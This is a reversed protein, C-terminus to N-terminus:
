VREVDYFPFSGTVRYNEGNNPPFVDRVWNKFAVVEGPEVRYFYASNDYDVRCLRGKPRNEETFAYGFSGARHPGSQLRFAFSTM